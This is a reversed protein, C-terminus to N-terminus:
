STKDNKKMEQLWRDEEPSPPYSELLDPRRKVTRLFAEKKRWENINLHHGSLLVDPVHHGQFEAPRTYHPHELRGNEFSETVASEANGLVGPLLRTVADLVVMAGLEGGTLIYDGISIEEDALHERVREDYGEYHGCILVLHKKTALNAAKKQTFPTGQPCMMVVHPDNGEEKIAEVASFLPQPMLLMGAGGGYPTDDVSQHKNNAYSRFNIARYHVANNEQAKKLISSHFVGPFMEPFLTLVDIKM